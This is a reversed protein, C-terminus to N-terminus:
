RLHKRSLFIPTAPQGGLWDPPRISPLVIPGQMCGCCPWFMSTPGPVEALKEPRTRLFGRFLCRGEVWRSPMGVAGNRATLPSLPNQTRSLDSDADMCRGNRSRRGRFRISRIAALVSKGPRPLAGHVGMERARQAGTAQADGSNKGVM